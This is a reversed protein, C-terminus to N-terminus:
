QVKDDKEEVGFTTTVGFVAPEVLKYVRIPQDRYKPQMNHNVYYQAATAADPAEIMQGHEYGLYATALFKM